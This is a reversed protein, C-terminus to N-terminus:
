IKVGQERLLTILEEMPFGMIPLFAGKCQSSFLYAGDLAFGGAFHTVPYRQVYDQLEHESLERFKLSSRSSLTDCKGTQVNYVAVGSIVDLWKGSFVRLMQIAEKESTPKEYVRGAFVNFLDGGIVLGADLRKGVDEAKAAAIKRAMVLPDDHRIQKEDVSSPITEYALGLIELAKGRFRSGSALIIRMIRCIYQQWKISKISTNHARIRM